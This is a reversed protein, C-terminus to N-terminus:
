TPEIARVPLKIEFKGSLLTLLLVVTDSQIKSCTGSFGKYLGENIRLTDGVAFKKLVNEAKRLTLYGRADSRSLLEEVFGVPVPTANDFSSALLKVVGRTGSIARWRDKDIDFQVFLYNPFLPEVLQLLRNRTIKEVLLQPLYCVFKQNELNEVAVSEHKSKTQVVYWRKAM